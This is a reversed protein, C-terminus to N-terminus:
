PRRFGPHLKGPRAPVEKSPARHSDQQDEHQHMPKTEKATESFIGVVYHYVSGTPIGINFHNAILLIAFIATPPGGRSSLPWLAGSSRSRSM